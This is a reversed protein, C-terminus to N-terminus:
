DILSELTFFFFSLFYVFEEDLKDFCSFPQFLSTKATHGLGSGGESRCSYHGPVPKNSKVKVKIRELTMFGLIKHIM